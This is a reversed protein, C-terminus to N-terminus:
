HQWMQAWHCMQALLGMSGSRSKCASKGATSWVQRMVTSMRTVPNQSRILGAQKWGWCTSQSEWNVKFRGRCWSSARIHQEWPQGWNGGWGTRSWWLPPTVLELEHPCAKAPWWEQSGQKGTRLAGQCYGCASVREKSYLLLCSVRYIENWRTKQGTHVLHEAIGLCFKTYSM